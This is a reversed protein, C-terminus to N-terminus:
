ALNRIKKFDEKISNKLDPVYLVAAPHYSPIILFSDIRFERGHVEGITSPRTGQKKLLYTASTLGLACIIKPKIIELQKELYPSCVGIEVKTPRRDRGENSVPRCKLINGIFVRRRSLGAEELLENFLKGARGVFPRGEIDEMRGPAEGVFMIRANLPGEGPVTNKRTSHLHCKKCNLILKSLKVFENELRMVM